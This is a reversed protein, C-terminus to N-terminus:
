MTPPYEQIMGLFLTNLIFGVRLLIWKLLILVFMSIFQPTTLNTIVDLKSEKKV